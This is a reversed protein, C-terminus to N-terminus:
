TDGSVLCEAQAYVERALNPEWMEFIDKEANYLDSNTIEVDTLNFLSKLKAAIEYRSAERLVLNDKRPMDVLSDYYLYCFAYQVLKNVSIESPSDFSELAMLFKLEYIRKVLLRADFEIDSEFDKVEISNDDNNNNGNDNNNNNVLTQTVSVSTATVGNTATKNNIGNNSRFLIKMFGTALVAIVVISVVIVPIVVLKRNM